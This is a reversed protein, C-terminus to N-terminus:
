EIGWFPRQWFDHWNQGADAWWDPVQLDDRDPLWHGIFAVSDGGSAFYWFESIGCGSPCDGSGERFLYSITDQVMRPYINSMDMMNAELYELFGPLSQYAQALVDPHRRGQFRMELVYYHYSGIERVHYETLQYYANLTDWSHYNAHLLQTYALQDIHFNVYSAAFFPPLYTIENLVPYENSYCERISQLEGYVQEYLQLPALIEGSLYLAVLEAEEHPMPTKVYYSPAQPRNPKACQIVLLLGAIALYLAATRKM